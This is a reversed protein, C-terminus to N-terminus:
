VYYSPVTSDSVSYSLAPNYGEDGPGLKPNQKDLRGAGVWRTQVTATLPGNLYSATFNASFNPAAACDSLFGQDGGAQGAVDRRNPNQILTTMSYTGHLRFAFSGKAGSM